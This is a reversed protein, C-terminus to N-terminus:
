LVFNRARFEIGGNTDAARADDIQQDLDRIALTCDEIKKEIDKRQAESLATSLLNTRLQTLGSRKRKIRTELETITCM